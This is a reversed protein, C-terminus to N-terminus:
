SIFVGLYVRFVFVLGWWGTNGLWSDTSLKPDKLHDELSRIVGLQSLYKKQPFFFCICVLSLSCFEQISEYNLRKQLWHFFKVVELQDPLNKILTMRNEECLLNPFVRWLFFCSTSDSFSWNKTFCCPTCWICLMYWSCTLFTKPNCIKFIILQHPSNITLPSYTM